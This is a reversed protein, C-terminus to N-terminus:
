KIYNLPNKPNGNIRIEFHIHPGTSRGTNGTKAITEGKAVKQGVSVSIRSLHAYRTQVGNGHDVFVVYGYDGSWGAFAVKGGDSAKVTTGVSTAFDVGTHFERGRYGFPSSIRGGSIPKLYSGTASKSPVPKTGESIVREKAEKIVKEEIIEKAVIKGNIKSLLATVEKEGNEGEEIVEKEGKYKSKDEVKKTTYYIYDKYTIKEKIAISLEPEPVAVIVEEGIQLLTEEDIDPNLKILDKTKMDHKNAITSLCDGEEVNYVQNQENEKTIMEVAEDVPVINDRTEFGEYVEISEVFTMEVIEPSEEDVQETEKSEDKTKKAIRM